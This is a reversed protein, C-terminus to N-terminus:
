ANKTNIRSRHARTVSYYIEFARLQEAFSPGGGYDWTTFREAADAGCLLVAEVEPGGLAQLEEVTSRRGLRATRNSSTFVPLTVRPSTNTFSM